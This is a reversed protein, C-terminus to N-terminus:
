FNPFSKFINRDTDEDDELENDEEEEKNLIDQSSSILFCYLVNKKHVTEILFTM